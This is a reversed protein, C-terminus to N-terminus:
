SVFHLSIGRVLAVLPVVFKNKGRSYGPSSSTENGIVNADAFYQLMTKDAIYPSIEGKLGSSSLNLSIIRPPNNDSYSCNLGDWLYAQPSCPDGQWNRFKLEHELKINRIANADKEYTEQRSNKQLAYYELANVLPPLTSNETANFWIEIKGEHDPKSGKTGCLTDAVLYTPILPIDYWLDGNMYINFERSENMQLKVLEAFHLYFFYRLNRDLTWWIGMYRISNNRTYATSMVTLPLGYGSDSINNVGLSTNTPTWKDTELPSWLRDYVDDRYRIVKNTASGFDYRGKLLLSGADAVYIDSALPRLELVSIFPIGFGTNVLCIHIDDSSPVHIIEKNIVADASEIIVTDWLDVGIHLEFKPEQRRKDYNGYMFRARILYRTDKGELPSLTYCNRTGEPFSRVNWFQQENIEEKYSASIERNEGYDTFNTDSLYTIGTEEDIYISVDSIGCDISIFGTRDVHNAQVLVTLFSAGQLIAFLSHNSVVM